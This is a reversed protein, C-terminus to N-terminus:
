FQASMTGVSLRNRERFSGMMKGTELALLRPVIRAREREWICQLWGPEETKGAGM